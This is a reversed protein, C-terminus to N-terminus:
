KTSVNKMYWNVFKNIGTEINTRPRYDLLREAKSIDAYTVPVDGVPMPEQIIKAKKGVSNEITKILNNLGIPSSNGLNMIEFGKLTKDLASITGQVIDDIYTYDRKSTGDGFRKIPTGESISKTFLYPAMDPRGRPGYVTFYRLATINMNFLHSYTNSFLECARKSAAYPSAPNNVSDTESFPVKKNKGYVSSSSACIFDKVGYKKGVELLNITAQVNSEQYLDPREISFRVGARAALHVVKDINYNQFVTEVKDKIALNKVLFTFDPNDINHSINKVKIKQPYYSNLNDLCIVKDGRALLSDCVHSGIFGAGGTVLIDM